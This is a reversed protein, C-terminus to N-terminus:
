QLRKIQALKIKWHAGCRLVMLARLVSQRDCISDFHSSNRRLLVLKRVLSVCHIHIRFTSKKAFDVGPGFTNLIKEDQARKRASSVSIFLRALFHYQQKAILDM